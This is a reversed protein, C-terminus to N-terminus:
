FGTDSFSVFKGLQYLNEGSGYWWSAAAAAADASIAQLCAGNHVHSWAGERCTSLM